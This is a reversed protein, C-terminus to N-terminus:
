VLPSRRHVVGVRDIGDFRFALVTIFTDAVARDLRDPYAIAVGGYNRFEADGAAPADFNARYLRFLDAVIGSAGPQQQLIRRGRDVGREGGRPDAFVFVEFCRFQDACQFQESERADTFGGEAGM